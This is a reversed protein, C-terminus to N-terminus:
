PNARNLIFRIDIGGRRRSVGSLTLTDGSVACTVGADVNAVGTCTVANAFYSLQQSASAAPNWKAPFTEVVKGGAPVANTTMFTLVASTPEGVINSDSVFSAALM